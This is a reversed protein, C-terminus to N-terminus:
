VQKFDIMNYFYSANTSTAGRQPVKDLGVAETEIAAQASGAAFCLAWLSDNEKLMTCAFTASFIDGIGTTDHVQLKPLKLSYLRDGDLMSVNITDTHLVYSVGKKQLMKMGAVGVDGALPQIEQPNVKIASIESLDINTKELFVKNESDIRRMFGQPDLFVFKSDKKIMNYTDIALEDFIPSIIIGDSESKTYPIADCKNQLHLDRTVGKVNIKFRTTAANSLADTYQIQKDDLYQKSPFDSGFRTHLNVDFKFRRAAYGCYCASGGIQEYESGAVLINDIACHAYIDLRMM